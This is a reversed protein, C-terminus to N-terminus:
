SYKYMELLFAIFPTFIDTMINKDSDLNESSKLECTKHSKFTGYSKNSLWRLSNLNPEQLHFPDFITQLPMLTWMSHKNVKLACM